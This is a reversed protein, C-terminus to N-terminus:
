LNFSVLVYGLPKRLAPYEKFYQSIPLDKSLNLRTQTTETWKQIVTSWPESSSKLWLIADPIEENQPQIYEEPLRLSLSSPNSSDSSRSIRRRKAIVGTDRYKRKLNHIQDPLKGALRTILGRTSEVIKSHFYVSLKECPFLRVIERAWNTYVTTRIVKDPTDTLISTGILRVLRKRAANELPINKDLNLLAKGELSSNLLM